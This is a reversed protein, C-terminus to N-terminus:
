EEIRIQVLRSFEAQTANTSIQHWYLKYTATGQKKNVKIQHKTESCYFLEGDNQYTTLKVKGKKDPRIHLSQGLNNIMEASLVIDGENQRNFDSVLGTKDLTQIWGQTPAFDKIISWAQNIDITESKITLAEEKLESMWDANLTQKIQQYLEITNM